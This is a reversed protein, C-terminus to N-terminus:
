NRDHIDDQSAGVLERIAQIREPNGERTAARDEDALDDFDLTDLYSLYAESLPEFERPM